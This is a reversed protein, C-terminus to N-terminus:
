SVNLKTQTVKRLPDFGLWFDDVACFLKLISM